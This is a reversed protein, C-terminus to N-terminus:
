KRALVTRANRSTMKGPICCFGGDGEHVDSLALEVAMLGNHMRGGEYRYFSGPTRSFGKTGRPRVYRGRGHLICGESGTTQIIGGGIDGRFEDGIAALMFRLVDTNTLFDLFPAREEAPWGLFGGFDERGHTGTLGESPETGVFREDAPDEFPHYRGPHTTRRTLSCPRQQSQSLASAYLNPRGDLMQEPPRVTRSEPHNDIAANMAAVVPPPM